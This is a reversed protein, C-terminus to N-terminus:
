IDFHKSAVGSLYDENPRLRWQKSPFRLRYDFDGEWSCAVFVNVLGSSGSGVNKITIISSDNDSRYPPPNEIKLELTPVNVSLYNNLGFYLAALTGIIGFTTAIKSHDAM